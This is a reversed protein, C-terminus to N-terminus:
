ANGGMMEHQWPWPHNTWTSNVDQGGTLPGHQQEYLAILNRYEATVQRFDALAAQDTPNVDLFLRLDQALIGIGSLQDLLESKTM